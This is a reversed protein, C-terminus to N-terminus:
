LCLLAADAHKRLELARFELVQEARVAPFGEGSRDWARARSREGPSKASEGSKAISAGAQRPARSVLSDGIAM